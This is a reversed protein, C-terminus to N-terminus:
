RTRWDPNDNWELREAARLMARDADDCSHLDIYDTEREIIKAIENYLFVASAAAQQQNTQEAQQM